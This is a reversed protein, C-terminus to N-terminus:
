FAADNFDLDDSADFTEFDEAAALAFADAIIENRQKEPMALLDHVTLHGAAAHMPGAAVWDPYARHIRDASMLGESVARHAMQDLQTPTEDAIFEVPEPKLWGRQNMEKHLTRALQGSIIELSHARHIWASMSLGYKRKLIGIEDLSLHTRRTGLEDRARAAPVLFAAAFRQALKEVESEQDIHAMNMVLHGLEHALTSRRRDLSTALNIVTVPHTEGGWGSLGDFKEGGKRWGVVIVRNSEATHTLSDIPHDDLGWFDRLQAAAAEADENSRVVVPAPLSPKPHPYLLTYLEIHLEALDAAYTKVAHQDGDALGDARRFAQWVVRLSPQHTFYSPPVNLISATLLLFGASPTSKNHEYKSIVAKTAPHGQRTLAGALADQTLGALLRAQYLREGIM